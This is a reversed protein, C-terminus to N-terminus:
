IGKSDLAGKQTSSRQRSVGSTENLGKKVDTTQKVGNVFVRALKLPLSHRIPLTEDGEEKVELKKIQYEEIEEKALSDCYCNLQAKFSLDILRTYEDQHAKVHTRLM